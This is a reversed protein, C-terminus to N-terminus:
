SNDLSEQKQFRSGPFIEEVLDGAPCVQQLIEPSVTRLLDIAEAFTVSNGKASMRAKLENTGCFYHAKGNIIFEAVIEKGSFEWYAQELTKGAMSALPLLLWKGGERQKISWEIQAM